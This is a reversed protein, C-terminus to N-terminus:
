IKSKERRRQAIRKTDHRPNWTSLMEGRGPFSPAWPRAQRTELPGARRSMCKSAGHRRAADRREAARPTATDREQLALGGRVTLCPRDFLTPAPLPLSPAARRPAARRLRNEHRPRSTAGRRVARDHEADRCIRRIPYLRWRSPLTRQCRHRVCPAALGARSESPSVSPSESPARRAAGPVVRGQVPGPSSIRVAARCFWSRHRGRSRRGAM